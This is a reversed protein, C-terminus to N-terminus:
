HCAEVVRGALVPEWRSLMEDISAASLCGGERSVIPINDLYFFVSRLYRFDVERGVGCLFSEEVQGFDHPSPYLNVSELILSCCGDVREIVLRERSRVVVDFSIGYPNSMILASRFVWVFVILRQVKDVPVLLKRVAKM